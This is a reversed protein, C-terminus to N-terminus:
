RPLSYALSIGAIFVFKPFVLDIFHFGAWAAHELQDALFKALPGDGFTKVAGLISGGGVIWFMDFGRLADLSTLRQTSPPSVPMRSGHDADAGSCVKFMS